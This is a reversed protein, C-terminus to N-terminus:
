EEGELRDIDHRVPRFSPRERPDCMACWVSCTGRRSSGNLLIPERTSCTRDPELAVDGASKLTLPVGQYLGTLEWPSDLGMDRLTEDDPQGRSSPPARAGNAIEQLHGRAQEAM